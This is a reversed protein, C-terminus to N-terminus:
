GKEYNRWTDKIKMLGDRTNWILCRQAPVLTGAPAVVEWSCVRRDLVNFILRPNNTSSTFVMAMLQRDAKGISFPCVLSTRIEVTESEVADPFVRFAEELTQNKKQNTTPRVPLVTIM